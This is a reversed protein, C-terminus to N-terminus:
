RDARSPTVRLYESPPIGELHDHLAALPTSHDSCTDLIFTVQELLDGELLPDQPTRPRCTM